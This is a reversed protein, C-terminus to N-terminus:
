QRQKGLEWMRDMVENIDKFGEPFCDHPEQGGYGDSFGRLYDYNDKDPLSTKDLSGVIKQAAIRSWNLDKHKSYEANIRNEIM